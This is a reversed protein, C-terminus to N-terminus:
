PVRASFLARDLFVTALELPDSHAVNSLVVIGLQANPVLVVAARPGGCSGDHWFV